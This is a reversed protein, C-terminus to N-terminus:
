RIPPFNNLIKHVAKSLRKKKKETSVYDIQINAQASGRWVIEKTKPIIVDIVLTGNDYTPHRYESKEEYIVRMTGFEKVSYEYLTDRYLPRNLAAHFGLTFDERGYEIKRYGKQNLEKEVARKIRMQLTRDDVRGDGINLKIGPLWAYTRLQSYNFSQDYDSAIDMTNCGFLALSSISIIFISIKKM